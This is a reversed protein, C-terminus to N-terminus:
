GLDSVASDAADCIGGQLTREETCLDCRGSLALNGHRGHTKAPRQLTCVADGGGQARHVIQLEPNIGAADSLGGAEGLLSTLTSNQKLVIEGPHQVQGIVTVFRASLAPVFIVDNRRLRLDALPSGNTLLEQLQIWLM